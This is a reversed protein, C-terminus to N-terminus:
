DSPGGRPDPLQGGSPTSSEIPARKWPWRVRRSRRGAPVSVHDGTVEPPPLEPAPRAPEVDIVVVTANDPASGDLVREILSTAAAGPPGPTGLLKAVLAKDLQGSIGDSCLLYRQNVIDDVMKVDAVVSPDIGVARTVVNREPHQAAEQEDIYGGDILEQVVSHDHTLQVLGRGEGFSYARSDGVHFVALASDGHQAVPVIGVLTTGMGHPGHEAAHGYVRRNAEIVLERIEDVGLPGRQAYEACVQLVLSSAVEGAEHGGMGDAVAFMRGSAFFGDENHDRVKGVHTAAGWRFCVDDQEWSGTVATVM